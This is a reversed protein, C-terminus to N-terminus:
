LSHKSSVIEHLFLLLRYFLGVNNWLCTKFRINNFYAKAAEWLWKLRQIVSARRELRKIDRRVLFEGRNVHLDRTKLVSHRYSTDLREHNLAQSSQPLSSALPSLVVLILCTFFILVLKQTFGKMAFRHLDHLSPFHFPVPLCIGMMYYRIYTIDIYSVIARVNFQDNFNELYESTTTACKAANSYTTQNCPHYLGL